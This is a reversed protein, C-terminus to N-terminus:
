IRVILAYFITIYGVQSTYQSSYSAFILLCKAIVPNQATKCVGMTPKLPVNTRKM